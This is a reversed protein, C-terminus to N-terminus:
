PDLMIAGHTVGAALLGDNPDAPLTGLAGVIVKACSTVMPVLMVESVPEVPNGCWATLPSTKGM